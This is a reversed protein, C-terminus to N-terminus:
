RVKMCEDLRISYGAFTRFSSYNVGYRIKARHAEQPEGFNFRYVVYDDIGYLIDLIEVGGWNCLCYTAVAPADYYMEKEQKTM